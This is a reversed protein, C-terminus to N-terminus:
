DLKLNKSMRQEWINGVYSEHAILKQTKTTDAMEYIKRKNIKINPHTIKFISIAENKDKAIIDFYGEKTDFVFKTMKMREM